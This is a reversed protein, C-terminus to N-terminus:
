AYFDFWFLAPLPESVKRGLKRVKRAALAEASLKLSPDVGMFQTTFMPVRECDDELLVGADVFGDIIPKAFPNFVDYHRWSPRWFRLIIKVDETFIPPDIKKTVTKTERGKESLGYEVTKSIHWGAREAYFLAQDFGKKRWKKVMGQAARPYNSAALLENWSPIVKFVIRLAPTPIMRLQKERDISVERNIWILDENM